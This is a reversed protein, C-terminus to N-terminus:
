LELASDERRRCPLYERLLEDVRQKTTRTANPHTIVRRVIKNTKIPVRRYFNAPDDIYFSEDEGPARLLRYEREIKYRSPKYFFLSLHSFETRPFDLSAYKVASKTINDPVFLRLAKASTAIVVSNPTKTYAQWM